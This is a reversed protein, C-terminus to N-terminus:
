DGLFDFCFRERNMERICQGIVLLTGAVLMRAIMLFKLFHSASAYPLAVGVGGSVELSTM